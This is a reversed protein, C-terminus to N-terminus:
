NAELVSLRAELARVREDTVTSSAAANSPNAHEQPTAPVDPKAAAGAELRSLREELARIREETVAATTGSAEAGVSSRFSLAVGFMTMALRVAPGARHLSAIMHIPATRLACFGSM